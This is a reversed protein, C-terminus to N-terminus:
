SICFRTAVKRVSARGLSSDPRSVASISVVRAAAVFFFAQASLGADLDLPQSKCHDLFLFVRALIGGDEQAGDDAIQESVGQVVRVLSLDPQHQFLATAPDFVAADANGLRFFRPNELGEHTARPLAAFAHSKPSDSTCRM